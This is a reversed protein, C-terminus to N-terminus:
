LRTAMVRDAFSFSSTLEAILERTGPKVSLCLFSGCAALGQPYQQSSVTLDEM